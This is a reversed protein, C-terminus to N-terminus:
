RSCCVTLCNSVQANKHDEAERIRDVVQATMEARVQLAVTIFFVRQPQVVAAELGGKREGTKACLQNPVRQGGVRGSESAKGDRGTDFADRTMVPM